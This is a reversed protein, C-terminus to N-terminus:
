REGADLASRSRTRDAVSVAGDGDVAVRHECYSFEVAVDDGLGDVVAALADPDCVDYLPPLRTPDVGEREAVTVVVDEVVSTSAPQESTRHDLVGGSVSASFM